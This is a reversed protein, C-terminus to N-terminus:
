AITAYATKSRGWTYLRRLIEMKSSTGCRIALAWPTDVYVPACRQSPFDPWFRPGRPSQGYPPAFGLGFATAPGGDLVLIFYPRIKVAVRLSPDM